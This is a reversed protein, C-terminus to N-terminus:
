GRGLPLSMSTNSVSTMRHPRGRYLDHTSTWRARKNLIKADVKPPKEQWVLPPQCQTKRTTGEDPTPLSTKSQTPPHPTKSEKQPLPPRPIKTPPLPKSVKQPYPPRSTEPPLPPQPPKPLLPSGKDEQDQITFVPSPGRCHMTSAKPWLNPTSFKHKPNNRIASNYNIFSTLQEDWVKAKDISLPGNKLFKNNFANQSDPFIDCFKIICNQPDKRTPISQSTLSQEVKEVSARRDTKWKANTMPKDGEKVNKKSGAM